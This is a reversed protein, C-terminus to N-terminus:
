LDRGSGDDDVCATHNREVEGDPWEVEQHAFARRTRHPEGSRQGDRLEGVSRDVEPRNLGAEASAFDPSAPDILDPVEDGSKGLLKGLVNRTPRLRKFRRCEGVRGYNAARSYEYFFARPDPRM